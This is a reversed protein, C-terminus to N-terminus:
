VLKEREGGDRSHQLGWGVTEGFGKGVLQMVQELGGKGLSEPPKRVQLHFWMM